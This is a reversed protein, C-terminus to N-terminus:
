RAAITKFFVMREKRSMEKDLKNATSDSIKHTNCVLTTTKDGLEDM